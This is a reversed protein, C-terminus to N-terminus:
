LYLRRQFIKGVALRIEMMEDWVERDRQVDFIKYASPASFVRVEELAPMVLWCSRVGLSFFADFKRLLANVSQTPSLVEIVLDPMKSVKLVDRDARRAVPAATETEIRYVCVDPKLEDKSKLGFQTLDLGAPDLSLETMVAFREDNLLLATLNAQTTGHYLSGMDENETELEDDLVAALTM